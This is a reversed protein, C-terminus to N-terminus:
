QLRSTVALIGTWKEGDAPTMPTINGNRSVLTIDSKSSDLASESIHNEPLRGGLRAMRDKEPAWIRVISGGLRDVMDAENPFRVDTIVALHRELAGGRAYAVLDKAVFNVWYDETQNRRYVGWWQLTARAMETYPKHHLGFMHQGGALNEEIDTKLADAFAFRQVMYGADDLTAYTFDKGSGARGTLGIIM